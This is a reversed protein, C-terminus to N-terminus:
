RRPELSAGLRRGYDGILRGARRRERDYVELADPLALQSLVRALTMADGAAKAVGMATHPRVVFAADGLLMLRGRVMAPADMDFVAQVFPDPEAEVVMAFPPPLLSEANSVLRQRAADPVQGPALSFRHSTGDRDTLVLPLDQERRYWVCNYRRQGAEIEGRPGAVLYGLTQGGEMHYFAFRGALIEAAIPPLM